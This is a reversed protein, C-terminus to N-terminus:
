YTIIKNDVPQQDFQFIGDHWYLIKSQPIMLSIRAVSKLHVPLTNPITLYNATFLVCIKWNTLFSDFGYKFPFESGDKLGIINSLSGSGVVPPFTTPLNFIKKWREKKYSTDILSKYMRFTSMSLNNECEWNVQPSTIFVSYQICQIVNKRKRM